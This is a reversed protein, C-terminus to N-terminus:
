PLWLMRKTSGCCEKQQGDAATLCSQIDALSTELTATATDSAKQLDLAVKLAAVKKTIIRKLYTVQKSEHLEHLRVQWLLQELETSTVYLFKNHDQLEQIEKELRENSPSLNEIAEEKVSLTKLLYATLSQADQRRSSASTVGTRPTTVVLATSSHNPTRSARKKKPPPTITQTDVDLSVEPGSKRKTPM